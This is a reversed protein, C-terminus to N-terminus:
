SPQRMAGTGNAVEKAKFYLEKESTSGRSNTVTIMQM